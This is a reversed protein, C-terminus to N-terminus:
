ARRRRLAVFGLALAGALAAFSSPEPVAGIGVNDITTFTDNSSVRFYATDSLVSQATTTFASDVSTLSFTEAAGYSVGDTSFEVSLTAGQTDVGAFTFVWDTQAGAGFAGFVVNFGAASGNAGGLSLSLLNAFDAGEATQVTNQNFFIGNFTPNNTTLNGSTPVITDTIFDTNQTNSGFSGDYYLMGFNASEAGAGFTPDFSSYNASLTNVPTFDNTVSSLGDGAYQSFDWGAVLSTQASAGTIAIASTALALTIVKKM